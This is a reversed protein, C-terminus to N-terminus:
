KQCYSSLPAQQLLIDFLSSLTSLKDLLKMLRNEVFYKTYSTFGDLLLTTANYQSILIALSTEQRIRSSVLSFCRGYYGDAEIDIHNTPALQYYMLMAVLCYNIYKDHLSYWSINWLLSVPDKNTEYLEYLYPQKITRYQKYKEGFWSVNKKYDIDKVFERWEKGLPDPIMGPYMMEADLKRLWVDILHDYWYPSEPWVDLNECNWRYLNELCCYSRLHNQAIKLDDLSLFPSFAVWSPTVNDSLITDCDTKAFSFGLFLPILFVIWWIIKKQFCSM